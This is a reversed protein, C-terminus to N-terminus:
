EDDNGDGRFDDMFRSLHKRMRELLGSSEPGEGPEGADGDATQAGEGQKGAKREQRQEPPLPSNRQQKTGAEASEGTPPAPPSQNLKPNAEAAHSSAPAAGRTAQRKAGKRVTDDEDSDPSNLQGKQRRKREPEEDPPEAIIRQRGQKKQGSAEQVAGAAVAPRKRGKRELEEQPAPPANSHQHKPGKGEFGRPLPGPKNGEPHPKHQKHAANRELQRRFMRLMVFLFLEGRHLHYPVYPGDPETISSECDDNFPLVTDKFFRPDSVEFHGVAEKLVFGPIPSYGQALAKAWFEREKKAIDYKSLGRDDSFENRVQERTEEQLNPIMEMLHALARLLLAQEDRTIVNCKRLKDAYVVVTHPSETNTPAFKAADQGRTSGSRKGFTVVPAMTGDPWVVPPKGDTDARAPLEVVNDTRENRVWKSYVSM